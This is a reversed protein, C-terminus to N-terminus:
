GNLRGGAPGGTPSRRAADIPVIVGPEGAGGAWPSVLQARPADSVEALEAALRPLERHLSEYRNVRPPAAPQVARRPHAPAAARYEAPVSPRPEPVPVRPEPVPVRPEPISARSEPIPVRPQPGGAPAPSGLRSATSADPSPVRGPQAALEQASPERVAPPATRQDVRHWGRPVVLADAHQPCLDYLAPDPDHLDLLWVQRSAYRFSLSAAAPWRCGTRSCSRLIATM